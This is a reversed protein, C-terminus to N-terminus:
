LFEQKYLERAQELSNMDELLRAKRPKRSVLEKLITQAREEQNNEILAEAYLMVNAPNEPHSSYANSLLELAMEKSPWKLIFPIRPVRLHMAGLIREAGAEGFDTDRSLIEEAHKKIKGILGNKSAEVVGVEQGWRALNSVYYYRLGVHNPYKALEAEGLAIAKEYIKEKELNSTPTFNGKFEYARLLATVTEASAPAQEYYAIAEDINKADALAGSVKEARRGYLTEGNDFGSVVESPPEDTIESNIVPMEKIAQETSDETKEQDSKSDSSSCGVVLLALPLLLEIRIM